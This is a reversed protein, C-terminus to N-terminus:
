LIMQAISYYVPIGIVVNFPFTIALSMPVYIAPKAKPLAMRMAATVAIYSASALLVTFLTATGIDLGILYSVSLGLAGGILPMYIGFAFMKFTFEKLNEAQKSVLLGMDLLFLALIGQFPDIFFGSMSKMGDTGTAWGILFSGMLLVIAANTFLEKNLHSKKKTDTLIKEPAFKGALMLGSVIAPAEM